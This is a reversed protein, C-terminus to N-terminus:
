TYKLYLFDPLHAEQKYIRSLLYLDMYKEGLKNLNIELQEHSKELSMANISLFASDLYISCRKLPSDSVKSRQFM